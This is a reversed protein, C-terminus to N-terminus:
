LIFAWWICIGVGILVMAFPFILKPFERVFDELMLRTRQKM